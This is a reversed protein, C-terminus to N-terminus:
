KDSDMISSDGMIKEFAINAIYYQSLFFFFLFSKTENTSGLSIDYQSKRVWYSNILTSVLIELEILRKKIDLNQIM